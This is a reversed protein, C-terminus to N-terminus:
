GGRGCDLVLSGGCSLFVTGFDPPSSSTSTVHAFHPAFLLDIALSGELLSTRLNDELSGFPPILLLLNIPVPALSGEYHLFLMPSSGELLFPVFLQRQAPM